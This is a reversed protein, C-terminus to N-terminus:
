KHSLIQEIISEPSKRSMAAMELVGMAQAETNTNNAVHRCTKLDYGTLFAAERAWAERQAELGDPRAPPAEVTVKIATAKGTRQFRERVLTKVQQVLVRGLRAEAPDYSNFPVWGACHVAHNEAQTLEVHLTNDIIYTKM